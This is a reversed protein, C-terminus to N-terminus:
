KATAQKVGYIASILLWLADDGYDFRGTTYEKM